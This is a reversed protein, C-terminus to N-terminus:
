GRRPQHRRRVAVVAALALGALVLSGPEPLPGPPDDEPDPPDKPDRLKPPLRRPRLERPLQLAAVGDPAGRQALVSVNGCVDPVMVAYVNGAEDSAEYLDAAETHGPKFNVRTDICLTMGYTMAIHRQDFVRGSKEAVVGDNRVTIRDVKRGARVDAAIAKVVSAPVQATQLAQEVSGRYPNRGPLGWACHRRVRLRAEPAEGYSAPEEDLRAPPVEAALPHTAALREGELHTGRPVVHPGVVVREEAAPRHLMWGAGAAAVLSSTLGALLVLRKPVRAPAPGAASPDDLLGAWGCGSATCRYRRLAGPLVREFWRRRSRRLPRSCAPCPPRTPRSAPM